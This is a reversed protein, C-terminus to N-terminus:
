IALRARLNDQLDQIQWGFVLVDMKRGAVTQACNHVVRGGLSWYFGAFPNDSWCWVVVSSYDVSRFWETARQMLRTGIGEGSCDERVFIEYIEGEYDEPEDSNPGAVVYGAVIGEVEAVQIMRPYQDGEMFDRCGRAEEEYDLSLLYQRPLLDRYATRWTDVYVRAIAPADEIIARRLRVQM